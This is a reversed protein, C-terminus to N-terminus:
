EIIKYTMKNFFKRDDQTFAEGINQLRKDSPLTLRSSINYWPYKGHIDPHLYAAIEVDSASIYRGAWKEIIHKLARTDKTPSKTKKQADLWEYAMRICDNHEHLPEIDQYSFGQKANNIQLDTLM